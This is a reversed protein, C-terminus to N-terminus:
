CSKLDAYKLLGRNIIYKKATGELRRRIAVCKEKDSFQSTYDEFEIFWKNVDQHDDGSFLPVAADLELMDIRRVVPQSRYESELARIQEKLQLMELRLKLDKLEKEASMTASPEATASKARSINLMQIAATVSATPTKAAALNVATTNTATLNAEPADPVNADTENMNNEAFLIAATITNADTLEADPVNNNQPLIKQQEDNNQATYVDLTTDINAVINNANTNVSASEEQLLEKDDGVDDTADWETALAAAGGTEDMALAEYLARLQSLTASPPFDIGAKTLTEM